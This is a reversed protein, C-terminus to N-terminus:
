QPEPLGATLLDLAEDLLEALPRPPDARLWEDSVAATTAGFAAAVLRPYLGTTGTREAVAKAFDEQALANVKAMEGRLAPETGMLRVGALWQEDPPQESGHGVQGLAYHAEVAARIAV